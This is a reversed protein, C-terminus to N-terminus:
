FNYRLGAFGARGSTNYDTLEQYDENLINEIRAFIELGAIANYNASIDWVSYDDLPIDGNDIADKSIRYNTLINLREDFLHFRVGINGSRKPRRIRQLGADTETDNYLANGQVVIINWLPVAFGLEIGKSNSEGKEQIYGPYEYSIENNIRQNFYTLNLESGNSFYTDIGVDLGESTEEELNTTSALGFTANKNTSIEYPSPARFGTGYSSRLKLSHDSAGLPLIYAISARHSLHEGFDENDDWRTGVNIYLQKLFQMQLETFVGWQDQELDDDGQVDVNEQQFDSGAVWTISDGLTFQGVYDIKEIDGSNGYSRLGNTFYDSEFQSIAFGVGHKSRETSYDISARGIRQNYLSECDNSVPYCNDYESTTDIDRVVLQARLNDSINVGVKGHLTRNEYGDSEGSVDTSRANFGDTSQDSASFFVDYQESGAGIYGNINQTNYRGQEMSVRGEFGDNVSRTFMNIVGGADAGYIFGQPGRLIEIRSIDSTAGFHEVLPTVKPATSNSLDIGDLMMLTRYSEEGRIRIASVKGQGGSNTATIGPQTRLLDTASAYGMLQIDSDSIVSVSSGIQRVPMEVRSSTVVIEDLQEQASLFTSFPICSSLLTPAVAKKLLGLKVCHPKM